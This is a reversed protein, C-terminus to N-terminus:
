SNMNIGRHRKIVYTYLYYIFIIVAYLAVGEIKGRLFYVAVYPFFAFGVLMLNCQRPLKMNLWLDYDKKREIDNCYGSALIANFIFISRWITEQALLIRGQSSDLTAYLILSSLLNKSILPQILSPFRDLVPSALGAAINALLYSLFVIVYGNLTM